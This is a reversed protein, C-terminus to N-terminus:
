KEKKESVPWKMNDAPRKQIQSKRTVDKEISNVTTHKPNFIISTRMREDVIRANKPCDDRIAIDPSTSFQKNNLLRKDAQAITVTMEDSQITTSKKLDSVGQQENPSLM